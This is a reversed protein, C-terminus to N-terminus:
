GNATSTPLARRLLRRAWSTSSTTGLPTPMVSVLLISACAESCLRQEWVSKSNQMMIPAKHYIIHGYLLGANKLNDLQQQIPHTGETRDISLALPYHDKLFNLEHNVHPFQDAAMKSAMFNAFVEKTWVDDFWRMTVLDGFWMHATEHSILQFRRLEDDETPQAGLFITRANFQIAGPHEMGGFQYGPLVVFDYKSFPYAIGTYNELWRISWAAEAFCKDLQKVKEPDTERYLANMTRGDITATKRQFKGAALLFTPPSLTSPIPVRSM